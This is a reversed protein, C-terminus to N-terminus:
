AMALRDGPGLGEPQLLAARATADDLLQARWWATSVRAVLAQHAAERELSIRPRCQLSRAPLGQPRGGGCTAHDAGDLWLLARQGPPLGDYVGARLAGTLAGGLPDDDRSGTVAMFPRTIGGFAQQVSGRGAAPPSPSFAIFARPRAENVVLGGPFRQGALAQTTHAGFSHGAVGIADARLANWPATGAAALRLVEDLAFQMDLVRQRLQEASAASRLAALGRRLTDTDSGAHQLHLVALGAPAWAQGWLAGGDRSGGLGHSYVVLPWPGPTQPLRLLWPIPRQRAADLWQGQQPVPLALAPPMLLLCPLAQLLHRRTPSLQM